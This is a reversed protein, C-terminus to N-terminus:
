YVLFYFLILIVVIISTIFGLCKNRENGSAKKIFSKYRQIKDEDRTEIDTYYLYRYGKLIANSYEDNELPKWGEKLMKKTYYRNYWAGMILTIIWLGLRIRYIMEVYQESHLNLIMYVNLFIPFFQIFTYIGFFIVFGNFDLRFAPVWINFFVSTYSYGVFGDKIFGDKELKIKIAM